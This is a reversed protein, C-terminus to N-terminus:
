TGCIPVSVCSSNCPGGGFVISTLVHVFCVSVFFVETRVYRLIIRLDFGSILVQVEQDSSLSTVM